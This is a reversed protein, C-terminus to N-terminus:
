ILPLGKEMSSLSVTIIRRSLQYTQFKPTHTQFAIETNPTFVYSCLKGCTARNRLQEIQYTTVFSIKLNMNVSFSM